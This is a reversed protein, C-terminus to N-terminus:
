NGICFRRWRDFSFLGSSRYRSHPHDIVQKTETQEQKSKKAAPPLKVNFAFSDPSFYACDGIRYEHGELTVSGYCVSHGVTESSTVIPGLQPESM